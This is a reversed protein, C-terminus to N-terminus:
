YWDIIKLGDVRDFEKINHTVLTANHSLVTGAILCDFPGIPTGKSELKARIKASEFAEKQTFDLIKVLSTLENLQSIRKNPANSKAIGVGLEFMVISPIALEAPSTKILNESVNGMNKFYYILTNTDLVFM